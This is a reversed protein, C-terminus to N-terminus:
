RLSPSQISQAALSKIDDALSVPQLGRKGRTALVSCIGTKKKKKKKQWPSTRRQSWARWTDDGVDVAAGSDDRPAM